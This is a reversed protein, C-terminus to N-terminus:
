RLLERRRKWDPLYQAVLEYFQRSHNKHIIHALEHVVVYDIAEPPYQMLRWSFCIRNTGSCSGFRSKASTITIGSPNLQMMQSYYAVRSPLIEKALKALAQAAQATPEPPRAKKREQMRGLSRVIWDEHRLVFVEIEKKSVHYPARVLVTLERTVELAM